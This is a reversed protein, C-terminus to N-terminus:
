EFPHPNPRRVFPSGLLFAVDLTLKHHVRFTAHYLGKGPTPWVVEFGHRTLATIPAVGIWGNRFAGGRALEEVPV